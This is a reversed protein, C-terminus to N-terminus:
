DNNTFKKVDPNEKALLANLRFESFADTNYIKFKIYTPNRSGKPLLTLIKNKILAINNVDYDMDYYDTDDDLYVRIKIKATSVTYLDVNLWIKELNIDNSIGNYATFLTEYNWLIIQDTGDAKKFVTSGSNSEIKVINYNTTNYYNLFLINKNFDTRIKIPIIGAGGSEYNGELLQYTWTKLRFNYIFIYTSYFYPTDSDDITQVFFYAQKKQNSYASGIVTADLNTILDRYLKLKGNDQNLIPEYSRGDFLSIGEDTPICLGAPTELIAEPFRTGDGAITENVRYKIDNDTNVELVFNHTNKFVIIRGSLIKIGQNADKDGQNVPLNRDRIFTDYGSVGYAYNSPMVFDNNEFLEKEVTNKCKILFHRGNTQGNFVSREYNMTIDQDIYRNTNVIFRVRNGAVNCGILEDNLAVFWFGDAESLSYSNNGKTRNSIQKIFAPSEGYLTKLFDEIFYTNFLPVENIKEEKKWQFFPYDTTAFLIVKDVIGSGDIAPTNYLNFHTIRRDFWTNFRLELGKNRYDSGGSAEDPQYTGNALLLENRNDYTVTLIFKNRKKGTAGARALVYGGLFVNTALTKGGAEGGYVTTSTSVIAYSSLNSIVMSTSGTGVISLIFLGSGYYSDLFGQLTDLLGQLTRTYVIGTDYHFTIDNTGNATYWLGFAGAIEVYEGPIPNLSSFDDARLAFVGAGNYKIKVANTPATVQYKANEDIWVEAGVTALLNTFSSIANSNLVQPIQSLGFWFGDYSMQSSTDGASNLGNFYKRKYIMDILLPRNDKGCSIRLQNDKGRFEIPTPTFVTGINTLGNTSANYLYSVPFRFVQIKHGSSWNTLNVKTTFTKTSAVYDTIFNYKNYYADTLSKNVIFWGNFYNNTASLSVTSILTNTGPAGSITTEASYETLELWEDIWSNATKNPNNNSFTVDPNFYPKIFIKTEETSIHKLVFLKIEKEDRDINFYYFDIPKYDTKHPLDAYAIEISHGKSQSLSNIKDHPSLNKSDEFYQISGKPGINVYDSDIAAKFGSHEIIPTKDVM